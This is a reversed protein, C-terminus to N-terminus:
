RVSRNKLQRSLTALQRGLDHYGVGRASVKAVFVVDLGSPIRAKNRRYVERILRKVRNRQVADGVKKSVTVGVRTRGANPKVFVLLDRLHVKRGGRQVVLFQRRKRLRDRKTFREDTL